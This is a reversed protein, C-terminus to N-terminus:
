GSTASLARSCSKEPRSRQTSASPRLPTGFRRDLASHVQSLILQDSLAMRSEPTERFSGSEVVKVIHEICDAVPVRATNLVLAYLAPDTWDICFLRQMTGNHAANNREIERRAIAPDRIGLRQM